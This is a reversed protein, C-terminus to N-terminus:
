TQFYGGASKVLNKAAAFARSAVLRSTDVGREVFSYRSSLGPLATNSRVEGETAAELSTPTAFARALPAGSNRPKRGFPHRIPPLVVSPATQQSTNQRLDGSNSKSGTASELEPRLMSSFSDSNHSTPASIKKEPSQLTVM